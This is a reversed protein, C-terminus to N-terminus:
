LELSLANSRFDDAPIIADVVAKNLAKSIHHEADVWFSAAIVIDIRNGTIEAIEQPQYEGSTICISQLLNNPPIFFPKLIKNITCFFLFISNPGFHLTDQTCNAFPYIYCRTIIAAVIEM